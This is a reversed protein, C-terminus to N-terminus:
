IKNERIIKKIKEEHIRKKDLIIETLAEDYNKKYLFVECKMCPKYTRDHIPTDGSGYQVDSRWYLQLTKRDLSFYEDQLYVHTLTTRYRTDKTEAELLQGKDNVIVQKERFNHFSFGREWKFSYSNDFINKKCILFKGDLEGKTIRLLRELDKEVDKEIDTEAANTSIVFLLLCITLLKTKM